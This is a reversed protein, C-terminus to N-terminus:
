WNKSGSKISMEWTRTNLAHCHLCAGQYGSVFHNDGPNHYHGQHTIVNLEGAKVGEKHCFMCDDPLTKVINTVDPHGGMDELEVNLRYDGGDTSKHCDICGNPHDDSSTIGPLFADQAFLLGAAGLLFLTAILIAACKKQIRM